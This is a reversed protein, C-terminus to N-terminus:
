PLHLTVIHMGNKTFLFSHSLVRNFDTWDDVWSSSTDKWSTITRVLLHLEKKSPPQTREELQHEKAQWREQLTNKKRPYLTREQLQHEKKAYTREQLKIKEQLKPEKKRTYM